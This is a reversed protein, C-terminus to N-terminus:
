KNSKILKVYRKPVNWDFRDEHPLSWHCSVMEGNGHSSKFFGYVIGIPRKLLHPNDDFAKNYTYIVSDGKEM